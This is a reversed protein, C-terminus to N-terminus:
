LPFRNWEYFGSLHIPHIAYVSPHSLIQTIKNLVKASRREYPWGDAYTKSLASIESLYKSYFFDLLSEGFLGM